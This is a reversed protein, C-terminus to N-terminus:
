PMKKIRTNWEEKCAGAKPLQLGKTDKGQAIREDETMDVEVMIEWLM